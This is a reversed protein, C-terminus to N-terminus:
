PGRGCAPGAAAGRRAGRRGSIAAGAGAGRGARAGCASWRGVARRQRDERVERLERPRDRDPLPPPDAQQHEEDPQDLDRQEEHRGVEAEVQEEPDRHRRQRQQPEHSWPHPAVEAREGRRVLGRPQEPEGPRQLGRTPDGLVAEQHRPRAEEDQHGRALEEEVVASGRQGDRERERQQEGEDAPHEELALRAPAGRQARQQRHLPEVPLVGEDRRGVAVALRADPAGLVAVVEVRVDREEGVLVVGVAGPHQPPPPEGRREGPQDDPEVHDGVGRRDRDRLQVPLDRQPDGGADASNKRSSASSRM